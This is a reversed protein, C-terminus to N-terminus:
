NDKSTSLLPPQPRSFVWERDTSLGPQFRYGERNFDKLGAARDIRHDIAYRAMMGRAKKAYFSIM